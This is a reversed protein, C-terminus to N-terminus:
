GGYAEPLDIGILGLSGMERMLARDITGAAERKQYEPRLKERAYRRAVDRLAAQDDNFLMTPNRSTHRFAPTPRLLDAFSYYWVVTLCRIPSHSQISQFLQGHASRRQRIGERLRRRTAARDLHRGAHVPYAHRQGERQVVDVQPRDVVLGAPGHDVGAH